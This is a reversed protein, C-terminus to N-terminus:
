PGTVLLSWFCPCLGVEAVAFNNSYIFVIGLRALLELPADNFKVEFEAPTKLCTIDSCGTINEYCKSLFKWADDLTGSSSYLDAMYLLDTYTMLMERPQSNALSFSSKNELPESDKTVARELLEIAKEPEKFKEYIRSLERIATMDYPKVSLINKLDMMARRLQNRRIFLEARAQLAELDTSCIILARSYCYLAQSDHGFKVSMSGLRRWQDIDRPSMHAAVLYSQLAKQSDGLEEHIMGLTMWPQQAHPAAKIVRHLIEVAESYQKKTYALNAQGVLAALEKSYEQKKSHPRGRGRKCRIGLLMEGESNMSIFRLYDDIERLKDEDYRHKSDGKHQSKPGDFIFDGFKGIDDPLGDGLNSTDLNEGSLGNQWQPIESMDSDGSNSTEGSPSRTASTAKEEM